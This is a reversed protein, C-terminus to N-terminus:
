KVKEAKAVPPVPHPTTHITVHTTILVVALVPVNVSCGACPCIPDPTEYECGEIPYRVVPM